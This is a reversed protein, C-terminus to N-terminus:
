VKQLLQELAGSPDADFIFMSSNESLGQGIMKKELKLFPALDVVAVFFEFLDLLIAIYSLQHLAACHLSYM